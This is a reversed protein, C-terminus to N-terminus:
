LLDRMMSFKPPMKLISDVAQSNQSGECGQFYHLAVGQWVSLYRNLAGQLVNDCHHIEPGNWAGIVEENLHETTLWEGDKWTTTSWNAVWQNLVGVTSEIARKDCTTVINCYIQYRKKKKKWLDPIKDYLAPDSCFTIIIKWTELVQLFLNDQKLFSTESIEQNMYM